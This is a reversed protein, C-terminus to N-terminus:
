KDYFDVGEAKKLQFVLLYTLPLMLTEIIIKIITATLILQLLQQISLISGFLIPAVVLTHTFESILTSALARVYLNKGRMVAKIKVMVYANVLESVLFALTVATFVRGTTSFFKEYEQQMTWEPAPPLAVTFYSMLVFFSYCVLSAFVANRTHRFGYVEAFVDGIVLSFPFLAAAAGFKIGWVEVYKYALINSTLFTTVLAVFLLYHYKPRWSENHLEKIPM